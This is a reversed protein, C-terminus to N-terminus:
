GSTVPCSKQSVRLWDAGGSLAACPRPLWAGDLVDVDRDPVGADKLAQVALEAESQNHVVALVVNLPYLTGFSTAGAPTPGLQSPDEDVPPRHQAHSSETM